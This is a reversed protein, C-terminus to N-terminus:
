SEKKDKDVRSDTVARRVAEAQAKARRTSENTAPYICLEPNRREAFQMLEEGLGFRKSAAFLLERVSEVAGLPIPIM